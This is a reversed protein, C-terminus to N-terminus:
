TSLLLPQMMISALELANNTFLHVGSWPIAKLLRVVVVVQKVWIQFFFFWFFVLLAMHSEDQFQFSGSLTNKKSYMNYDVEDITEFFPSTSRREM